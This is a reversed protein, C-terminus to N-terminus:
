ASILLEILAEVSHMRYFVTLPQSLNVLVFWVSFGFYQKGLGSELQAHAGFAPIVWLTINGLVLFACIEQIVRRNWHDTDCGGNGAPTVSANKKEPLDDGRAADMEEGTKSFASKEKENAKLSSHPAHNHLHLGRIIFVNQLVLEVMSLLSYSLDLNSVIDSSGLALAAVLSLYSLSLQGVATGLLLAVDLSKTPNKSGQLKIMRGPNQKRQHGDQERVNMKQVMTGALSCLAMIPMLGLHFFYFVMLAALRKANQVVWMHYLVFVIVGTLLVLLGLLPGLLVRGCLVSFPSRKQAAETHISSMHRGVNKWMVYLMCSALLSYEMNFPYLIEYGKRLTVCVANSSCQCLTGNEEGTKAEQPALLSFTNNFAEKDQKELDIETHVSDDTVACFWLLVDACLTVMLGFRTLVKHKHICDKSHAWLLYTQLTFFPAQFFPSLIKVVPKCERMLLYYGMRFLCLLLSSGSFLMLVVMVTASGAHHDTHPPSGPLRRGSLLYWLMWLLSIGMLVLLFLESEQHQLGIRNFADGVVFAAGLLVVNLGILGSILRRGSPVWQPTHDTEKNSDVAFESVDMKELRDCEAQM